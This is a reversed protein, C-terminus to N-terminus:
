FNNHFGKPIRNHLSRKSLNELVPNVIKLLSMLWRNRTSNEM